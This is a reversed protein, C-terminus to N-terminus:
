ANEGPKGRVVAPLTDFLFILLGRWRFVALSVVIIGMGVFSLTVALPHNSPLALVAGAPAGLVLALFVGPVAAERRPLQRMWPPDAPAWRWLAAVLGTALLLGVALEDLTM